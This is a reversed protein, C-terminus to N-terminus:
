RHLWEWQKGLALVQVSIPRDDFGIPKAPQNAIAADLDDLRPGTLRLVYAYDNFFVKRALRYREYAPHASPPGEVTGLVNEANKLLLKFNGVYNIIIAMEVWRLCKDSIIYDTLEDCLETVHEVEEEDLDGHLARVRFADWLGNAMEFYLGRTGPFPDQRLEVLDRRPTPHESLYWAATVGRYLQRLRRPKLVAPLEKPSATSSWEIYQRATHHIFGLAFGGNHDEYTEIVPSCLTCIVPIPEEVPEGSSAFQLIVAVTRDELLETSMWDSMFDEIDM